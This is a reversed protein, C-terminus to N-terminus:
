FTRSGFRPHGVRRAKQSPHPIPSASGFEGLPRTRPDWGQPIGSDCDTKSIDAHGSNHFAKQEGKKAVNLATAFKKVALRLNAILVQPVKTSRVLVNGANIKPM